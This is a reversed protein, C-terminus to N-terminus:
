KKLLISEKERSLVEGLFKEKYLSRSWEHTDRATESLPRFKLGLSIARSSDLKQFSILESHVWLPLMKWCGVDNARLIDESVWKLKVGPNIENKICELVSAMTHGEYPSVTNFTGKIDKEIAVLMWEALDRADIFQVPANKDGPALVEGGESIRDAWYPFRYTPDYPGVILGPRVILFNDSFVERVVEECLYKRAGYTAMDDKDVDVDLNVLKGQEDVKDSPQDTMNFVSCTSVFIYKEVNKKLTNTIYKLNKPFYGSTDIVADFKIGELLEIDCSRDGTIKKLDPFLDSNSKGRNFLTVDHGNRIATTVTHRGLFNTGGLILLRM